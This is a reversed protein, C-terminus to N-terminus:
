VERELVGVFLLEGPFRDVVALVPGAVGAAVCVGIGAADEASRGVRLVEAVLVDLGSVLAAVSSSTRV